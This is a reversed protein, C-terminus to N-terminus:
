RSPGLARRTPELVERRWGRDAIRRRVTTEGLGAERAWAAMCQTRGDLTYLRTRRQNRNQEAVTAWRCNGPEYDGNNDERDLTLGPAPRRGMDELFSAFSRQWRECVSIGRGGYDKYRAHRPNSCRSRMEKWIWYEPLGVGGHYTRKM